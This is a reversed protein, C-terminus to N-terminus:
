KEEAAKDPGESESGSEGESESVFQAFSFSTPKKKPSTQKTKPAASKNKATATERKTKNKAVAAAATEMAAHEKPDQKKPEKKQPTHQTTTDSNIGVGVGDADGNADRTVRLSKVVGDIKEVRFGGSTPDFVLACEVGTNPSSEDRATRKTGVYTGRYNISPEGVGSSQFEMAVASADVGERRVIAPKAPDIAPARWDYKFAAYAEGSASTDGSFTAGLSVGYAVGERPASSDAM